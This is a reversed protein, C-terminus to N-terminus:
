VLMRALALAADPTTAEGAFQAEALEALLAGLRPGPPIGLERALEDGRILPPPPGTAQWALADGIMTRALGLHREIAQESRAGRTALRDAVSLLTVDAAVPDSASLYRFVARRGLPTEHVLFGLRLHHRVLAAVHAQLRESTRLRGLIERAMAAGLEDHARFMVRGDDDVRRTPPKAVDHLLAGLRLAQGRTLEDALPAGLLGSIAGAYRDGLLAGPDRELAIVAELVEITHGAVDRHHYRNQEVGAMADLEPLIVATLGLEGALRLGAVAEDDTLIRRLEAFIREAAVGRLGPAAARAASRAEADPELGLEGALRVLRLTRLPDAGLAGPAALRLRGAALDGAGGLPDFREGGALPEAIANVTFDRLALDAALSGGRLPNLDAQWSRDRAVVRWAGFEDSLEFRAAGASTALVRAAASVDGDIVVDLDAAPGAGRLADRVAGGVLWARTGALSSRVLELPATM